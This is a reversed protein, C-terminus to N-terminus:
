TIRPAGIRGVVKIQNGYPIHFIKFLFVQLASYRIDIKDFVTYKCEGLGLECCSIMMVDLFRLAGNHAKIWTTTASIHTSGATNSGALLAGGAPAGRLSRDSESSEVIGGSERALMGSSPLRRGWCMNLM